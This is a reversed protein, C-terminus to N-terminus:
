YREGARSEAVSRSLPKGKVKISERFKRLSPLQTGCEEPPVLRAAKRGRRMILIEKGQSVLDLLEKFRGRAERVSVEM